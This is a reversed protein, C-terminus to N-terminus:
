INPLSFNFTSIGFFNLVLSLIVYSLFIVVLGILAAIITDKAGQVGGKDGGSIIWRIGGYILYALALIAAVVFIYTIATGIVTGINLGCLHAFPGGQPCTDINAAAHIPTVFMLSPLLLSISLATKRFNM